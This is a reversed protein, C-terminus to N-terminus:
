VNIYMYVANRNGIANWDDISANLIADGIHLSIFKVNAM